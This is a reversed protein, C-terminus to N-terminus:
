LHSSQHNEIYRSLTYYLRKALFGLKPHYLCEWPLTDLANGHCKIVINKSPLTADIGLVQWLVLGITKLHEETVCNKLYYESFQQALRQLHPYIVLLNSPPSIIFPTSRSM